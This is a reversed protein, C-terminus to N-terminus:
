APIFGSDADVTPMGCLTVGHPMLIHRGWNELEGKLNVCKTKLEEKEPSLKVLEDGLIEMPGQIMAAFFCAGALALMDDITWGIDPPEIPKGDILCELLYEAREKEFHINIM